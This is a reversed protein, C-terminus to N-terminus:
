PNGRPPEFIKLHPIRGRLWQSYVKEIFFERLCTVTSPEVKCEGRNIPSYSIRGIWANVPRGIQTAIKRALNGSGTDTGANCSNFEIFADATFIKRSLRAVDRITMGYDPNAKGWGFRLNVLGPLGHSFVVLRGITNDRFKNLEDVLSSRPTLWILGGRPAYKEFDNLNTGYLEYGTREVIWVTNSDNGLWVAATVFQLQYRQPPKPSGIVVVTMPAVSVGASRLGWTLSGQDASADPHRLVTRPIAFNAATTRSDCRKTVRFLAKQCANFFSQVIGVDDSRNVGGRGVSANIEEM